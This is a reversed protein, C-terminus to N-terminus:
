AAQGSPLTALHQSVSASASALLRALAGSKAQGAADVLAARLAQESQRVGALAATADAYTPAAAGTRDVKEGLAAVHGRHADLLSTLQPRLTAFRRAVVLVAFAADLQGVVSDVLAADADPAQSPTSTASGSATPQAGGIDKGPDCASVVAAGLGAGLLGVASRRSLRPSDPM